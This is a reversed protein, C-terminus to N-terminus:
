LFFIDAILAYLVLTGGISFSVALAHVMKLPLYCGCIIKNKGSLLLSETVTTM